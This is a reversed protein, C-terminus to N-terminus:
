SEKRPQRPLCFVNFVAEPDPKGSWETLVLKRMRNDYLFRDYDYSEILEDLEEISSGARELTSRNYEVALIPRFRDIVARGGRLADVESGEIDMKIFALDRVGTTDAYEDLTVQPVELAGVNSEKTLYGVSTCHRLFPLGGAAEDSPPVFFQKGSKAGVAVANLNIWTMRNLDMNAKIRRVNSPFPEFSDVRGGRGVCQALLLTFWGSDAGLDWATEGERVHTSIFRSM